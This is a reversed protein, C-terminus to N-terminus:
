VITSNIVDGEESPEKVVEVVVQTVLGVLVVNESYLPVVLAVTLTEEVVRVVVLPCISVFIVDEVVAITRGDVLVIPVLKESVAEVVSVAVVVAGGTIEVDM